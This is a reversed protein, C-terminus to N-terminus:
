APSIARDNLAVFVGCAAGYGQVNTSASVLIPRFSTSGSRVDFTISV